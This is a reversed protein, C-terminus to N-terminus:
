RTKGATADSSRCNPRALGDRKGVALATRLDSGVIKRVPPTVTRHTRTDRSDGNTAAIRIRSRHGPSPNEGRRPRQIVRRLQQLGRGACRRHQRRRRGRRRWIRLERQHSTARFHRTRLGPLTSPPWKEDARVDILEQSSRETQFQSDGEIKVKIYLNPSRPDRVKYAVGRSGEPIGMPVPVLSCGPDRLVQLVYNVISLQTPVPLFARLFSRGTRESTETMRWEEVEILAILRHRVEDLSSADESM